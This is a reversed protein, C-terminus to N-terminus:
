TPARWSDIVRSSVFLAWAALSSYFVVRRSDILGQASEELTSTLSVYGCAARLADSDFIYEGIGLIFVAFIFASTLLLATIQTRALTSMLVGVALYGVGVLFVGAYGSALTPLHLTGTGRLTAAYLVTPLWMLVYTCLCGLYKGWVISAASAPASLLAEISGSRREEAITRMTLGPCLLLLSFAMLLSQQGFYAQIPGTNGVSGEIQNFHVVIGYFVGGQLLLFTTLLLWALPTFWLSLFERKFIAVAARM